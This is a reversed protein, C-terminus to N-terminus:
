FIHTDHTLRPWHKNTCGVAGEGMFGGEWGDAGSLFFILNRNKIIIQTDLRRSQAVVFDDGWSGFFFAFTLRNYNKRKNTNAENAM